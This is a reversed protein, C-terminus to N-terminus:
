ETTLQARAPTDPTDPIIIISSEKLGVTELRSRDEKCKSRPHTRHSKVGREGKFQGGCVPCTGVPVETGEEDDSIEITSLHEEQLQEQEEQLQEEQQQEEQEEEEQLRAVVTPKPTLVLRPLHAPSPESTLPPRAVVPSAPQQQIWQQISQQHSAWLSNAVSTASTLPSRVLATSAQELVPSISFSTPQSVAVTPTIPSVPWTFIPASSSFGPSTVAVSSASVQSAGMLSPILPSCDVGPQLISMTFTSAQSPTVLTASTLPSRALAPTAQEVVPTVSTQSDASKRVAVIPTVIPSVTWPLSSPASSSFGPSTIAVTSAPVQSTDLLSPILPSCDEVPQQTTMTTTSVTSPTAQSPVMVVQDSSNPNPSRTSILHSPVTQLVNQELVPRMPPAQPIVSQETTATSNYVSLDDKRSTEDEMQMMSAKEAKPTDGCLDLVEYESTEVWSRRAGTELDVEEKRTTKKEKTVKMKYPSSFEMHGVLNSVVASGSDQHVPNDGDRYFHRYNCFTRKLGFCLGEKWMSCLPADEKEHSLGYPCSFPPLL